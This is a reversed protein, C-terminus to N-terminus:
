WPPVPPPWRTSTSPRPAARTLLTAPPLTWEGVQPGLRLELQEGRGPRTAAEPLPPDASAQVPEDGPVAGPVAAAGALAAAETAEEAVSPQRADPVARGFPDTPEDDSGEAAIGARDGRAVSAAWRGARVLGAVAGAVSVGTFILLAAVLVLGVM